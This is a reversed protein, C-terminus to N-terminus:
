INGLLLSLAGLASRIKGYSTGTESAIINTIPTLRSSLITARINYIMNRLTAPRYNKLM